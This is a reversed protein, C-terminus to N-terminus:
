DSIKRCYKISYPHSHNVQLMLMLTGKAERLDTRLVEIGPQLFPWKVKELRTLKVKQGIPLKRGRIAVSAKATEREVEQFIKECIQASRNTTELGAANFIPIDTNTNTTPPSTKQSMLDGLQHLIASTLSVDDSIASIRDAATSIQGALTILKISLQIGTTAIGVISAAASVGDM